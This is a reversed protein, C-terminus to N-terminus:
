VSKRNGEIVEDAHKSAMHRQLNVFTRNCHTCVGNHVRKEIKKLKRQAAKARNDAARKEDELMANRQEQRQLQRRLVDAENEGYVQPHGNPCFFTDKFRKKNADLTDTQQWQVDCKICRQLVWM